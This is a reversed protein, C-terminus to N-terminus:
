NKPKSNVLIEDAWQKLDRDPLGPRCAIQLYAWSVLERFPSDISAVRIFRKDPFGIDGMPTLELERMDAAMPPIKDLLCPFPLISGYYGQTLVDVSLREKFEDVKKKGPIRSIKELAQEISGCRATLVEAVKPKRGGSGVLDCSPTLVVRFCNPDCPDGDMERLIDGLQTDECVPPCLYQEWCALGVADGSIGDMLAALRRRGARMIAENRKEPDEISGFAIPAVERMACSFSHRVYSAAGQLAEVHPVLEVLAALVEKDSGAGKQISKVFPHEEYRDDHIGPQASYVIIPCFYNDWIYNRTAIGDSSAEPTSGNNLLDLIVVDPQLSQIAAESVDFAVVKCQPNDYEKKILEIAPEVHEYEDEIFLLKMTM